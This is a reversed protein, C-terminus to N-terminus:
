HGGPFQELPLGLFIAVAHQRRLDRRADRDLLGGREAPVAVDAAGAVADAHFGEAGRRGELRKLFFESEEGFANHRGGLLLDGRAALFHVYSGSSFELRNRATWM